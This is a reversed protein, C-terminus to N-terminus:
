LVCVAPREVLGNGRSSEHTLRVLGEVHHAAADCLHCLFMTDYKDSVQTCRGAITAASWLKQTLQGTAERCAASVELHQLVRSCETM